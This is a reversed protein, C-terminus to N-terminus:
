CCEPDKGGGILTELRGDLEFTRRGKATGRAFASAAEAEARDASGCLEEPSADGAVSVREAGATRKEVHEIFFIDSSITSSQWGAMQRKRDSIQPQEIEPGRGRLDRGRQTSLPSATM